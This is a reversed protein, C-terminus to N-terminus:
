TATANVALDIFVWVGDADICDCVGVLLDNTAIAATTVSNDDAAYVKRGLSAITIAGAANNLNTRIGSLVTVEKDGAAGTNAVRSQAIGVCVLAATDSAPVLYGAANFAVVAGNYITTAAAIKYTEAKHTGGARIKYKRDTTLAAM